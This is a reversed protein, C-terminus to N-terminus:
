TCRSAAGRPSAVAARSCGCRRLCHRPRTRTDSWTPPWPRRSSPTRTGRMVAGLPHPSRRSLHALGGGGEKRRVGGHEAPLARRWRKRERITGRRGCPVVLGSKGALIAAPGEPRHAPGHIVCRRDAGSFLPELNPQFAHARVSDTRTPGPLGWCRVFPAVNVGVPERQLVMGRPCFARSRSATM